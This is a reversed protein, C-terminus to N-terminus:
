TKEPGKKAKIQDQVTLTIKLKFERQFAKYFETPGPFHVFLVLTEMLIQGKTFLEINCPVKLFYNM